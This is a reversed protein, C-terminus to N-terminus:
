ASVWIVITDNSITKKLVTGDSQVVYICKEEMGEFTALAKASLLISGSRSRKGLSTRMPVDPAQKCSAAHVDM